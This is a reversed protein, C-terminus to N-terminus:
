KVFELVGVKIGSGLRSFYFIWWHNYYFYVKMPYLLLALQSCGIVAKLFRILYANNAYYWLSCVRTAISLRPISTEDEKAEEKKEQACCVTSTLKGDKKGRKRVKKRGIRDVCNTM